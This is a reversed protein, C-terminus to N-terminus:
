SSRENGTLSRIEESSAKSSAKFSFFNVHVSFHVFFTKWQDIKLINYEIESRYGLASSLLVPYVM